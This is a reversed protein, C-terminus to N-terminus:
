NIKIKEQGVNAVRGRTSIDVWSYTKEVRPVKTSKPVAKIFLSVPKFGDPFRVKGEFNQFYKFGFKQRKAVEGVSVTPLDLRVSKGNSKVGQFTFEVFGKQAVDHRGVQIMVIKYDYGGKGDANFVVKKFQVQRKSKGPTVVNHYFALEEKLKLTATECEALSTTVKGSADKQIDSGRSLRVNERLAMEKKAVEEKLSLSLASIKANYDAQDFGSILRGYQYAGWVVVGLGLLVVLGSALWLRPRYISILLKSRVPDSSM